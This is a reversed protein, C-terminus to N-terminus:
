HIIQERPKVERPKIKQGKLINMGDHGSEKAEKNRGRGDALAVWASGNREAQSKGLMQSSSPYHTQQM